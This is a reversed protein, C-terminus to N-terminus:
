RPVFATGSLKEADVLARLKSKGFPGSKKAGVAVNWLTGIQAPPLENEETQDPVQVAARCKPCRLQKGSKEAGLALKANCNPCTATIRDATSVSGPDADVEVPPIPAAVEVNPVQVTSQCKPCRIRKGANEGGVALQASCQPCTAIIRSNM